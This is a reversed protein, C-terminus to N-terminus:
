YFGHLKYFKSERGFFFIIVLGLCYNHYIFCQCTMNTCGKCLYNIIISTKLKKRFSALSSSGTSIEPSLSNFFKPGQYFVSFQRINTRCLQLPFSNAHRINYNHIQNNTTFINEFKRPLISNKFSLMFQLKKFIPETHNYYSKDVVRIM